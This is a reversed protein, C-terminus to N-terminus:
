TRESHAANVNDSGRSRSEMSCRECGRRFKFPRAVCSEYSDPLELPAM